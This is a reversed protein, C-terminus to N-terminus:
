KYNEIASSEEVSCVDMAVGPLELAVLLTEPPSRTEAPRVEVLRLVTRRLAVGFLGVRGCTVRRGAGRPVGRILETVLSKNRLRM